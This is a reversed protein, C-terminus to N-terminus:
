LCTCWFCFCFCFCFCWRLVQRHLRKSCIYCASFCLVSSTTYRLCFLITKRHVASYGYAIRSAVSSFASCWCPAERSPLSSCSCSRARACGRLHAAPHDMITRIPRVTRLQLLPGTNCLLLLLGTMSRLLSAKHARHTHTHTHTKHTQLYAYHRGSAFCALLSNSVTDISLLRISRLRLNLRSCRM